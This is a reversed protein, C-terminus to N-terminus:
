RRSAGLLRLANERGEALVAEFHGRVGGGRPPVFWRSYKGRISGARFGSRRPRGKFESSVQVAGARRIPKETAGRVGASQHRGTKHSAGGGQFPRGQKARGDRENKKESFFIGAFGRDM